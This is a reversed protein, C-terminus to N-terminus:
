HKVSRMANFVLVAVISLAVGSIIVAEGLLAFVVPDETGLNM